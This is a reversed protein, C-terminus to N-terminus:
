EKSESLPREPNNMLTARIIIRPISVDYAPTSQLKCAESGGYHVADIGM